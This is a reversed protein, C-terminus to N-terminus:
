HKWKEVVALSREMYSEQNEYGKVKNLMGTLHGKLITLPTKLEHQHRQSFNM